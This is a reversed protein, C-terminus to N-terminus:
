EDAWYDLNANARNILRLLQPRGDPGPPLDTVAQFKGTDPYEAIEPTLMTSVGLYKLEGSTATNRIQHATEAGGSPCAIVDGRKIPFRDTGFRVEGEGEVVFFMEENARHNHFPFACKGPALVTLSCGLKRAGIRSAIAGIQAQYKEGHGWPRLKVDAINLVPGSM